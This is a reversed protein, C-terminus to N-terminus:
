EVSECNKDILLDSNEHINGIVKLTTINGSNALTTHKLYRKIESYNKLYRDKHLGILMFSSDIFQIINNQDNLYIIDGEYIEVGKKDRLGTYQMLKSNEQIVEIQENLDLNENFPLNIDYSMVGRRFERFKIKRM